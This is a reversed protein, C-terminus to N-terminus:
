GNSRLNGQDVCSSHPRAYGTVFYSFERRHLEMHGSIGSTRGEKELLILEDFLLRLVMRTLMWSWTLLGVQANAQERHRNRSGRLFTLASADMCHIQIGQDTSLQAPVTMEVSSEGQCCSIEEHLATHHLPKEESEKDSESLCMLLILM